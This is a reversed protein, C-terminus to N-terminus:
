FNKSVIFWNSGDCYLTACSMVALTLTSAGQINGSSASVTGVGLTGSGNFLTIIGVKNTPLTATFPTTSNNLSIFGGYTSTALTVANSIIEPIIISNEFRSQNGLVANAGPSSSMTSYNAGDSYITISQLPGLTISTTADITGSATIITSSVSGEQNYITLFGVINGVSLTTTFPAGGNYLSVHSGLYSSDLTIANSTITPDTAGYLFLNNTATAYNSVDTLNNTNLLLDNINIGSDQIGNGMKAVTVVDGVTGGTIIENTINTLFDETSIAADDGVGYPTQGIYLLESGTLETVPNNAYIQGINSAM